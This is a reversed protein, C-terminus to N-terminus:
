PTQDLGAPPDWAGRRDRFWARVESTDVDPLHREVLTLTERILTHTFAYRAGEERLMGAGVADELADLLTSGDLGSVAQLVDVTLDEGLVAAAQLLRNSAAPLRSLRRGIM